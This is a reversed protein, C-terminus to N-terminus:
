DQRYGVPILVFPQVNGSLGLAAKVKEDDFSGVWCAGLELATAALLINETAAACNQAAYLNVGRDGFRERLVDLDSVVAIVVPLDELAFRQTHPRAEDLKQKTELGRIVIFQRDDLGGSSPARKGAKLLKEIMEEPVDKKPDFDRCVHRKEIAEFLDM